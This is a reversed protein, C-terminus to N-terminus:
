IMFAIIKFSNSEKLLTNNKSFLIIIFKYINGENRNVSNIQNIKMFININAKNNLIIIIIFIIGKQLDNKPIFIKKNISYIKKTEKM